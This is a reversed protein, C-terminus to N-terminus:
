CRTKQYLWARLSVRVGPSGTLKGGFEFEIGWVSVGPELDDTRTPSFNRVEHEHEEPSGGEPLQLRKLNLKQRPRNKRPQGRVNDDRGHKDQTTGRGDSGERPHVCDCRTEQDRDAHSDVDDDTTHSSGEEAILVIGNKGPRFGSYDLGKAFVAGVRRDKERNDKDEDEGDVGRTILNSADALHVFKQRGSRRLSRNRSVGLSTVDRHPGLVSQDKPYNVNNPVTLTSTSGTGTRTNFRRV